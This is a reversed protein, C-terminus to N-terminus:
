HRSLPIGTVVQAVLDAYNERQRILWWRDGHVAVEAPRPRGNYTSALVYGYAGVDMIAVRDGPALLPLERDRGLVDTSECVPGVVDFNGVAPAQRLSQIAHWAGYLAPRLLANMGVDLVVRDPAGHKVHVVSAVLVGAPGVIWRGPELILEVELSDIIPLVVEALEDPLPLAQDRYRIGLGGGLNVHRLTIGAQQLATVLEAIRETARAFPAVDTIQSGIHTHVGVVHLNSLSAAQQYVLLARELPVGFQSQRLGTAHHPHAGAEIDPNVRVAVPARVGLRGAVQAIMELEEAADVNIVRVGGTLADTIEQRTKGNGNFVIREASVGAQRAIFLEGGSVVDAGAGLRALHQCLVLNANAKYAYAILVNPFAGAYAQYRAEIEALSYVYVPTGVESAIAELPVGDCYLQRDHYHFASFPLRSSPVSSPSLLGEGGKEGKGKKGKERRGPPM